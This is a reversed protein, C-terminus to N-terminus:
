TLIDQFPVGEFFDKFNFALSSIILRLCLNMTVNEIGYTGNERVVPSKEGSAYREYVTSLVDTQFSIFDDKTMMPKNEVKSLIKESGKIQNSIMNGLGLPLVFTIIQMLLYNGIMPDYANIIFERGDITTTTYTERKEFNNVM